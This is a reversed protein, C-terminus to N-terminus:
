RGSRSIRVDDFFVTQHGRPDASRYSGLEIGLKSSVGFDAPDFGWAVPREFLKRDNLWIGVSGGMQGNRNVSRLRFSFEHWKNKPIKGRYLVAQDRMDYYYLKTANPSRAVIIFEQVKLSKDRLRSEPVMRLSM